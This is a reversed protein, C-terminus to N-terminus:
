MCLHACVCVCVCVPACVCVEEDAATMTEGTGRDLSTSTLISALHPASPHRTQGSLPPILADEPSLLRPPEEMATGGVSMNPVPENPLGVAPLYSDSFAATLMRGTDGLGSSFLCDVSLLM